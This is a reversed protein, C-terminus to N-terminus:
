DVWRLAPAALGGPTGRPYTPIGLEVEDEAPEWGPDHEIWIHGGVVLAPPADLTDVGISVTDRGPADWFVVTGCRYCRGRSADHDSDPAKRWRLGEGESLTLDRRHAASAAWPHGTAEVCDRCHCVLVDRLPGDVLYRVAGCACGGEYTM